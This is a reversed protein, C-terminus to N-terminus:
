VLPQVTPGTTVLDVELVADSDQGSSLLGYKYQITRPFTNNNLDPV